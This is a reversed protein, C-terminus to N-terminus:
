GRNRRRRENRQQRVEDLRLLRHVQCRKRGSGSLDEDCRQGTIGACYRVRGRQELDRRRACPPCWRAWTGTLDVLECEACWRPHRERYRQRRRTNKRDTLLERRVDLLTQIDGESPLRPLRAAMVCRSRAHSRLCLANHLYWSCGPEAARLNGGRVHSKPAANHPEHREGNHTERELDTSKDRGFHRKRHRRSRASGHGKLDSGLCTGVGFSSTFGAGKDPLCPM